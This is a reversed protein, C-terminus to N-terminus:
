APGGKLNALLHKLFEESGNQKIYRNAGAIWMEETILTEHPECFAPDIRPLCYLPNTLVRKVDNETWEKPNPM